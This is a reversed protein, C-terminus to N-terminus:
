PHFILPYRGRTKRRRRTRIPERRPDQGPVTRTPSAHNLTQCVTPDQPLLAPPPSHKREQEPAQTNRTEQSCRDCTNPEKKQPTTHPTHPVPNNNSFQMTSALM